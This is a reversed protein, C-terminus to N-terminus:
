PCTTSGRLRKRVVLGTAMIVGPRLVTEVLIYSTSQLCSRFLDFYVVTQHPWTNRKEICFAMTFHICHWCYSSCTITDSGGAENYGLICPYVRPEFAGGVTCSYQVSHRGRQYVWAGHYLLSHTVTNPLTYSPIRMRMLHRLCLVHFTQFPSVQLAPSVVSHQRRNVPWRAFYIARITFRLDDNRTM